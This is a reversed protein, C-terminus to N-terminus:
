PSQLGQASPLPHDARLEGAEVTVVKIGARRARKVMDATGKGGPFAVVLEPSEELMEQNRIAGAGRGHKKWLAPHEDVHVGNAVAWDGALRDAGKAAGHILVSIGHLSHLQNLTEVLVARDNFTRGGAVLVRM